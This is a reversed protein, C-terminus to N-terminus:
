EDKKFLLSIPDQLFPCPLQRTRLTSGMFSTLRLYSKLPLHTEAWHLTGFPTDEHGAFTGLLGASHMVPPPLLPGQFMANSTVRMILHWGSHYRGLNQVNVAEKPAPQDPRHQLWLNHLFSNSFTANINEKWLSCLICMITLYHPGFSAKCAGWLLPSTCPEAKPHALPQVDSDETLTMSELVVVAPPWFSTLKQQKGKPSLPGQKINNEKPFNKDEAKPM